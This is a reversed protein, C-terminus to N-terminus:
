WRQTTRRLETLAIHLHEQLGRQQHDNLWSDLAVQYAAVAAAATLVAPSRSAGRTQLGDSIVATLAAMKSLERERLEPHAEIIQRRIRAADRRHDFWGATASLADFILDLPRNESPTTSVADFIEALFQGQGPFLVERKDMFHNYFSRETLGARAAIEAVTTGAYGQAAFLDIAARQLRDQGGTPWRGMVGVTGAIASETILSITIETGTTM